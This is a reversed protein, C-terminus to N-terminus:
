EPVRHKPLHGYVPLKLLCGQQNQHLHHMYGYKFTDKVLFLNTVPELMFTFCGGM